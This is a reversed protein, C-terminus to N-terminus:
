LNRDEEETKAEDRSRSALGVPGGGLGIGKPQPQCVGLPSPEMETESWSQRSLGDANGITSGPKYRITIDMGQLKLAFRMLRRNLHKSSLLSVCPKHDSYVTVSRGYLYYEFHRVASVIALTELETVSYNKEAGRLQRSYFAVPLDVGDRVVHLCAGVGDGSADTYLCFCDNAVPVFLVVRVCLSERLHNFALSMEETWVVKAPSTLSVAPSLLSSLRAFGDVFQRYYSMSGLFSRLQRKTTPKRFDRMARVRLEPVAVRGCGIQHGLYEMYKRGFECKQRKITFGAEGLCIIVRKVDELHSKWNSSFIVVDDIYNRSFSKVPRLVEEVISQFIAPANKLGFPMRRYMFKGMPCVFSTLPMSKEDVEIQHFGSTLDLKSLCCSPGVKELIETLTPLWFRRLPTRANLERYDICVRVSGDKKRVPVLPSAWEADSKVIVGSTLMKDIEIEVGDRIGVPILRPPLNVVDAGERLKIVCKSGKCLGPMDSFYMDLDRLLEQLEKEVYGDCKETGLVAKSGELDCLVGHEEAVVSVANVNVVRDVYEKTNNIHVVRLRHSDGKSVRYTVRSMKEKVVYPGEWSAQLSAHMGPIRILVKSGVELCRDSRNKNFSLCRKTTNSSEEVVAMDHLLSLREQLKLVWDEVDLDEYVRDVWGSYLIDLPGLLDRGYVLQHPSFGVDRNPVQRIAFLAMPLFEAWDIGTESAKALMPKLTGHLREVVGNSQPRYPSTLIRDVGLVDCVKEMVRGLFVSGRDSLVRLPIGTRSIIDVFCEAVENASCSRMPCADPWRSALCIYTFLYKVGRRAKPLPGVIDIAVSEFPVTVIPREVMKASKNGASNMRLCVDCSKVYKVIDSHLGPWTFKTNLLKRMGRVGTHSCHDHALQLM